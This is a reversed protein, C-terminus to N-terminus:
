IMVIVLHQKYNYFIIYKYAASYDNSIAVINSAAINSTEVFISFSVLSELNLFIM